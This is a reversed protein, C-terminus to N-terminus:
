RVMEAILIDNQIQWSFGNKACWDILWQFKPYGTEQDESRPFLRIDDIFIVLKEFGDIKKMVANLEEEIPSIKSGLFTGGESFHGDLWLNAIPGAAAIADEFLEESTGHLLTVNKLKKLRSEAIAFFKPSPEISIVKPFRRALYETTGGMYTGTEVWIGNKLSFSVLTKMKLYTPSPAAFNRDIFQSWERYLRFLSLLLQQTSNVLPM